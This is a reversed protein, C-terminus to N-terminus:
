EDFLNKRDNTIIENGIKEKIIRTLEGLKSNVCFQYENEFLPFICYLNIWNKTKKEYDPDYPGNNPILIKTCDEPISFPKLLILASYIPNRMVTKDANKYSITHGDGFVTDFYFPFRSYFSLNNFPWYYQPQRMKEYNPDSRGGGCLECTSVVPWDSPLFALLEAREEGNQTFMPLSSMGCTGIIYFDRGEEKNPPIQYLDLHFMTSFFEKYLHIHGKFNSNYFEEVIEHYRTPIMYKPKFREIFEDKLNYITRM